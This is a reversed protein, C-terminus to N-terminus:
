EGEDLASTTLSYSSYSRRGLAETTYLPVAKISTFYFVNGCLGILILKDLAVHKRVALNM